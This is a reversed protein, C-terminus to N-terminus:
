ITKGILEVHSEDGVGKKELFRRIEEQPNEILYQIDAYIPGAPFEVREPTESDYRFQIVNLDKSSLAEAKMTELVRLIRGSTEYSTEGCVTVKVRGATEYDFADVLKHSELIRWILEGDEAATQNPAVKITEDVMPRREPLHVDEVKSESSREATGIARYFDDDVARFKRDVLMGRIDNPYHGLYTDSSHAIRALQRAWQKFFSNIPYM